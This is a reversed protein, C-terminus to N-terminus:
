HTPDANLAAIIKATCEQRSMSFTDVTADYANQPYLYQLSAEASGPRRNGRIEERRILEALPCIVKLLYLDFGSFEKALQDFIRKSTIVHDIIVGQNERMLALGANCLTMSIDYVDDEYIVQDNAMALYSDISIVGYNQGAEGLTKQLAISLTSKGSSSPGNLLIVKQKMFFDGHIKTRRPLEHASYRIETASDLM